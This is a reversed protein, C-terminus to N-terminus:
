IFDFGSVDEEPVDAGATGPDNFVSNGVGEDGMLDVANEDAFDAFASAAEAESVVNDLRDDDRTKMVSNLYASVGKNGKKDYYGFSLLLRYWAGSYIDDATLSAVPVARGTPGIVIPQKFMNSCNFFYHGALQAANKLSATQKPDDGDRFPMRLIPALQKTKEIGIKGVVVKILLAKMEKLYADAVPGKPLLAQMGYSKKIKGTESDENEQMELVHVYSGRIEPTVCTKAEVNVSFEKAM